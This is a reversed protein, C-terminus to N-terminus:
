RRRDVILHPCRDRKRLAREGSLTPSGDAQSSEISRAEFSSDMFRILRSPAARIKAAVARIGALEGGSGAGCLLAEIQITRLADARLALDGHRM